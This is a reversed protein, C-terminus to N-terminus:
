LEWTEFEIGDGVASHRKAFLLGRSHLLYWRAHACTRAERYGDGYCPFVRHLLGSHRGPGSEGDKASPGTKYRV